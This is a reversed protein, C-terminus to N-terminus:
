LAAMGQETKKKGKFSTVLETACLTVRSPLRGGLFLKQFSATAVTM